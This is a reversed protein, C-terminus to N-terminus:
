RFRRSLSAWVLLGTGILLMSGPEPIGTGGPWDVTDIAFDIKGAAQGSTIVASLIGSASLTVRQVSGTQGFNTLNVTTSGVEIDAADYATVTFNSSGAGNILDLALWAVPSSFDVTIYAPLSSGDNLLLSDTTGYLNPATTAVNVWGDNSMVVGGDFTAGPYTLLPGRGTGPVVDAYCCTASIEDFNVSGAFASAVAFALLVSLAYLRNM